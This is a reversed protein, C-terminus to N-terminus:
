RCTNKEEDQYYFQVDVILENEVECRCWYKQSFPQWSVLTDLYLDTTKAKGPLCVRVKTAPGPIELHLPPACSVIFM